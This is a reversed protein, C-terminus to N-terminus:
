QQDGDRNAPRENDGPACLERALAQRVRVLGSQLRSAAPMRELAGAIFAELESAEGRALDVHVSVTKDAV